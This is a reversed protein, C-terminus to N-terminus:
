GSNVGRKEMVDLRAAQFPAVVEPIAEPGAAFAEAIGQRMQEWFAKAAAWKDARFRQVWEHLSDDKLGYREWKELFQWIVDVTRENEWGVVREGELAHVQRALEFQHAKYDFPHAENNDLRYHAAIIEDV